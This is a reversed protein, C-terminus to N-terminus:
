YVGVIDTADTDTAYVRKVQFPHVIGAALGVFTITGVGAMDVKVDGIGGVFLGRTVEELDETDSPTIEFGADAPDILGSM